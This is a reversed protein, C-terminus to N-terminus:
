SELVGAQAVAPEDPLAGPNADPVEGTQASPAGAPIEEARVCRLGYGRLSAKLWRRLRIVAPPGEGEARLAVLFEPQKPQTM